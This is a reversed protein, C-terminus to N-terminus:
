ARHHRRVSRKRLLTWNQEMRDYDAATAPEERSSTSLAGGLDGSCDFRSYFRGADPLAKEDWIRFVLFTRRGQEALRRGFHFGDSVLRPGQLYVADLVWLDASLVDRSLSGAVGFGFSVAHMGPFGTESIRAVAEAVTETSFVFNVRAVM